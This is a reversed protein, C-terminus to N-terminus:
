VLVVSNLLDVVRQASLAYQEEEAPSNPHFFVGYKRQRSEKDSEISYIEALVKGNEQAVVLFMLGEEPASLGVSLQPSHEIIRQAVNRLHDLEGQVDGYDQHWRPPTWSIPETYNIM